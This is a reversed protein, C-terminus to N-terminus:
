YVRVSNLELEWINRVRDMTTFNNVLFTELYGCLRLSELWKAVSVPTSGEVSYYFIFIIKCHYDDYINVNHYM